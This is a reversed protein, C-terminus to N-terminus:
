PLKTRCRQKLIVSAASNLSARVGGCLVKAQPWAIMRIQVLTSVGASGAM